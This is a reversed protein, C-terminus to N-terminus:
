FTAVQNLTDTVITVGKILVFVICLTILARKEISIKREDKSIALLILDFVFFLPFLKDCYLEELGTLITETFEGLKGFLENTSSVSDAVLANGLGYMCLLFASTVLQVKQRITAGAQKLTIVTHPTNRQAAFAPTM